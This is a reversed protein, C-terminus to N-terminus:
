SHGKRYAYSCHEFEAEFLPELITLAAAQAVRDRVTPVSLARSEGAGKGKDVLIKLLPLPRYIGCGIEEALLSLNRQLAHEFVRISIGDAGACGHNYRVRRWGTLLNDTSILKKTLSAPEYYSEFKHM